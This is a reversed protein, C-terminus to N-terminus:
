DMPPPRRLGSEAAGPAAVFVLVEHLVPLDEAFAESRHCMPQTDPWDAPDFVPEPRRRQRNEPRQHALMM